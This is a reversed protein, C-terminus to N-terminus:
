RINAPIEKFQIGMYKLDEDVQIETGPMLSYVEGEKVVGVKDGFSVVRQCEAAIRMPISIGCILHYVRYNNEEFLNPMRELRFEYIGKVGIAWGMLRDPFKKNM